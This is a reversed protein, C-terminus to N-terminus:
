QATFVPPSYLHGYDEGICCYKNDIVNVNAEIYLSLKNIKEDLENYEQCLKYLYATNIM